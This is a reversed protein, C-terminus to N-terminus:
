VITRSATVMLKKIYRGPLIHDCRGPISPIPAEKMLWTQGSQKWPDEHSLSGSGLCDWVVQRSLVQTSPACQSVHLVSVSVFVEGRPGPLHRSRGCGPWEVSTASLWWQYRSGRCVRCIEAIWSKQFTLESQSPNMLRWILKTQPIVHCSKVWNTWSM